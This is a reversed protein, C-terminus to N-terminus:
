PVVLVRIAQRTVMGDFDGTWPPNLGQLSGGAVDEDTAEADDDSAPAESTDAAEATGSAAAESGTAAPTEGAPAPTKGQCGLACFLVLLAAAPAAARCFRMFSLM